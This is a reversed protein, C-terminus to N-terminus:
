FFENCFEISSVDPTRRNFEIEFGSSFVPPSRSAHVASPSVSPLAHIHTHARASMVHKM